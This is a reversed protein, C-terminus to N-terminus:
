ALINTSAIELVKKSTRGNLNRRLSINKKLPNHSYILISVGEAAPM